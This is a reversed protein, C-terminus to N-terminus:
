RARLRDERVAEVARILVAPASGATSPSASRVAPRLVHVALPRQDVRPDALVLEFGPSFSRVRPARCCATTAPRRRRLQGRDDVSSPRGNSPLESIFGSAVSREVQCSSSSPQTFNRADPTACARSGARRRRSSADAARRHDDRGLVVPAHERHPGPRPAAAASSAGVPGAAAGPVRQLLETAASGSEVLRRRARRARRRRRAAASAARRAAAAARRRPARRGVLSSDSSGADKSGKRGGRGYDTSYFGSGKYHVAVPHLVRELPSAGCVECEQPGPESMGHFVEFLHGNPCKYEYIPMSASPYWRGAVVRSPAAEARPEGLTSTSLELFCPADEFAALGAAARPGRTARRLRRVRRSRAPPVWSAASRSRACRRAQQWRRKPEDM